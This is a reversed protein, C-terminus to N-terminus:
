KTKSQVNELKYHLQHLPLYLKAFNNRLTLLDEQYLLLWIHIPFFSHLTNIQRITQTTAELLKEEQIHIRQQQLRIADLISLTRLSEPLQEHQTWYKHLHHHYIEHFLTSFFLENYLLDIWLGHYQALSHTFQENTDNSNYSLFQKWGSLEEPIDQYQTNILLTDKQMNKGQQIYSSLQKVTKPYQKQEPLSGITKFHNTIYSNALDNNTAQSNIVGYARAVILNSIENLVLTSTNYILFALDLSNDKKRTLCQSNAMHLTNEKQECTLWLSLFNHKKLLPNLPFTKNHSTKEMKKAWISNCIITAILSEQANYHIPEISWNTITIKGLKFNDDSLNTCLQNLDNFLDRESTKNSEHHINASVLKTYDEAVNELTVEYRAQSVSGLFVGMATLCFSYQIYRFLLSM